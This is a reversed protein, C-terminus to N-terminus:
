AFERRITARMALTEAFESVQHRLHDDSEDPLRALIAAASAATEDDPWAWEGLRHLMHAAALDRRGSASGRTVSALWDLLPATFAKSLAPPAQRLMVLITAAEGTRLVKAVTAEWEPDPLLRAARSWIERLSDNPRIGSIRGASGEGMVSVSARAWDLDRERRMADLFGEVIPIPWESRLAGEIWLGPPHESFAHLPAAAVIDRLLGSKTGGGHREYAKPEVGDRALTPSEEPLTVVLQHKTGGFFKRSSEIVLATRARAAMRSAFLSRTLRPLLAQAASRVGSARDDLCTELFPADAESLGIELASVLSQRMEAKEARLGAELELRAGEPDRLRFAVFGARREAPREDTGESISSEAGAGGGTCAKDLWDLEEGAIADIAQKWDRRHSALAPLLWPPARVGAAAALDCWEKLRDRAAHGGALLLGLRAAAAQPCPRGEPERPPVPTFAEPALGAGALHHIGSVAVRALLAVGPEGRPLAGAVTEIEASAPARDAGLLATVLATEWDDIGSAGISM